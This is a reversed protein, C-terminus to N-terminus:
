EELLDVARSATGWSLTFGAGGHGYNHVILQNGVHERELRVSPRGPRIGVKVSLISADALSPMIKLCRNLISETEIERPSVDVERTATGGLICDHLRPVIYTPMDDVTDDAFTKTLGVSKSVRLVQGRMPYISDDDCLEAAGFGSCNVIRSYQLESLQQLPGDLKQITGGGGLVRDLLHQLYPTSEIVPVLASYGDAYTPPLEDADLHRFGDVSQGWWPDGVSTHFLEHFEVMSVLHPLARAEDRFRLFSTRSWDLALSRPSVSYPYWVAAAVDSTTEPSFRDATVVVQYGKEILAVATTLGVIGAGVVVVPEDMVALLDM